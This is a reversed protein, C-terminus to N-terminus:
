FLLTCNGCAFTLLGCEALRDLLFSSWRFELPLLEWVVYYVVFLIFGSVPHIANPGTLVNSTLLLETFKAAELIM